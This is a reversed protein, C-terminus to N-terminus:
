MCVICLVVCIVFLVYFLVLVFMVYFLVLLLLVVCIVVLKSSHPGHRMKELENGVAGRYRRNVNAIECTGSATSVTTHAGSSPHLYRGFYTSCNGLFLCVTYHQM